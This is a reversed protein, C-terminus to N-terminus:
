DSECDCFGYIDTHQKCKKCILFESQKINGNGYEETEM